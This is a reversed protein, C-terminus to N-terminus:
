STPSLAALILRNLTRLRNLVSLSAKYSATSSTKDDKSLIRSLAMLQLGFAQVSRPLDASSVARSEVRGIEGIFRWSNWIISCHAERVAWTRGQFLMSMLFTTMMAMTKKNTRVVPAVLMMLKCVTSSLMSADSVRPQRHQWGPM